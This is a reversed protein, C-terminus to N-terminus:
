VLLVFGYAATQDGSDFNMIKDITYVVGKITVQMQLEPTFILDKAAIIIGLKGIYTNTGTKFLTDAPEPPSCKVTVELTGMDEVYGEDTHQEQHQVVRFTADTGYKALISKVKPLIKLDLPTAM